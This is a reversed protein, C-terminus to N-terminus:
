FNRFPVPGDSLGKVLVSATKKKHLKSPAAQQQRWCRRKAKAGQDMKEVRHHKQWHKPLVVFIQPVAPPVAGGHGRDFATHGDAVFDLVWTASPLVWWVTPPRSPHLSFVQRTQKRVVNKCVRECSQGTM